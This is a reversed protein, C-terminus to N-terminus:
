KGVPIVYLTQENEPLGLLEAIQDDHFAGVTVAGLDLAVVQLCLNQAAHGLEIHVYRIGRDGYKGTTREYIATFVFSVAGDEVWSQGLCAQSLEERKDGQMLKILEHDQPKYRYVGQPLDQVDGAVIYLELPYLAGASPATRGGGPNTIGQAAWSLQSVEQLSLPQGSYNRISRRNLMTFEVSVESDYRPEPLKISIEEGSTQTISPISTSGTCGLTILLILFGLGTLYLWYYRRSYRRRELMIGGKNTNIAM